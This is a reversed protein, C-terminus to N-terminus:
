SPTPKAKKKIQEFYGIRDLQGEANKYMTFEKPSLSDRREHLTIYSDIINKQEEKSKTMFFHMRDVEQFLKNVQTKTLSFNYRNGFLDKMGILPIDLRNMVDEKTMVKQEILQSCGDLYTDLYIHYFPKHM